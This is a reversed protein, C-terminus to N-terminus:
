LDSELGNRLWNLIVVCQWQYSKNKALTQLIWLVEAKVSYAEYRLKDHDARSGMVHNTTNHYFRRYFTQFMRLFFFTNRFSEGSPAVSVEAIIVPLNDM